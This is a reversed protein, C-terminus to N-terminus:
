VLHLQVKLYHRVQVIILLQILLTRNDQNYLNLFPLHQFYNADLSGQKLSTNPITYDDIEVVKLKYGKEKLLPKAFNLIEAHPTSSAGVTITNEDNGCSTLFVTLTVVLLFLIKKM